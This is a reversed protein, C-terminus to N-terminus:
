KKLFSYTKNIISNYSVIILLESSRPTILVICNDVNTILDRVRDASLPSILKYRSRGIIKSLDVISRPRM